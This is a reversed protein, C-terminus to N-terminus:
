FNVRLALQVQRSPAARLFEGYAPLPTSPYAGTGFVNNVDTFNTRGFLNFVEFIAALSNRSGLPIKKEVRVDVTSQTPLTGSNREVSTAPDAPTTRARDPGPITGGDGDGNLDAGALINYPRGSALSVISSIRIDYPAVFLGSLVLHHRQDQLSPGRESDPDFGIPVGTTNNPDRGQGNNQPIFASQFDTSNDEAKSLTYSALFQYRSNFRKVASATLGHYWTEGFPTYQLVSASTGARGGVDLPRRGVGLAPVVPNYDITGLQNFGRVYVYNVTLRTQEPLERHFGASVHHAYPTKLAPDISIVLSPFAGAAAETLTRGPASWAAVTSPFRAVLTRVGAASGDVIDAIGQIGTIVNDYYIGYAAHVRTKGDGIPDWSAALRPALNNNDSPFSSTGAVGPTNYTIDSWFQNQYRVGVKM